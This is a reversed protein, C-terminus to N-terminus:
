KTAVSCCPDMTWPIRGVCSLSGIFLCNFPKRWTPSRSFFVDRIMKTVLSNGSLFSGFFPHLTWRSFPFHVIWHRWICKSDIGTLFGCEKMRSDAKPRRLFDIPFQRGPKVVTTTNMASRFGTLEQLDRCSGQSVRRRYIVAFLWEFFSIVKNSEYSYCLQV